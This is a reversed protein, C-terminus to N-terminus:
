CALVCSPGGGVLHDVGLVPEKSQAAAGLGEVAPMAVALATRTRGAVESRVHDFSDVGRFVAEDVPRVRVYEVRVAAWRM